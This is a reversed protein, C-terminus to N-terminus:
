RIKMEIIENIQAENIAGTTRFLETGNKYFLITPISNITFKYKINDGNKLNYYYFNIDDHKQSINKLIDRFMECPGAWEACITLVFIDKNNKIIEDIQEININIINELIIETIIFKM